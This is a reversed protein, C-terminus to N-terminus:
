TLQAVMRRGLHYSIGFWFGYGIIGYTVPLWYPDWYGLAYPWHKEIVIWTMLPGSKCGGLNCPFGTACLAEWCYGFDTTALWVFIAASIMVPIGFKQSRVVAVARM